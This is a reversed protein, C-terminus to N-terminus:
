RNAGFLDIQLGESAFTGIRELLRHMEPLVSRLARDAEDELKQQCSLDACVHVGVTRVSNVRATLLGVRGGLGTSHCWACLHPVAPGDSPTDFVIGTPVGGPVAFVLYVRGGSPHTWALYNRVFRPLTVERSREVLTRDRPRFAALLDEESDLKFM